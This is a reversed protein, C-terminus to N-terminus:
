QQGRRNKAKEVATKAQQDACRKAGELLVPELAQLLNTIVREGNDTVALLNVGDLLKHFDNDGGFIWNLLQKMKSDAEELFRLIDAGLAAEGSCKGSLEQELLKFKEVAELFRSYLNPAGPHFRLVGGGNIRYSKVGSDFQLKEM